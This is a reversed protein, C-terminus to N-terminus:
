VIRWGNAADNYVLSFSAYQTSVTLDESLGMIKLGNRGITLNNTHFTGGADCVSITDGIAASSPLTLTFAAASTDCMYGNSIAANTAGTINSWTTGGGTAPTEWTYTGATGSATLVKGSNTTSNSPVHKNGDTDVHSLAQGTVAIPSTVTVAAHLSEAFAIKKWTIAM